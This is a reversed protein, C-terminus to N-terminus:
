SPPSPCALRTRGTRLAREVDASAHIHLRFVIRDETVGVLTLWRLFLRVMGPDSNMFRVKAGTRWPKNKTGEAWYAVVGAVFLESEALEGVQARAAAQVGTRRRVASERVAQARRSAAAWGRAALAARQDDTLPVDRLWRSLTSKSVLLAQRIERYSRGEHRLAVAAERLDDKATPRATWAPPPADRLWASLARGGTALGLADCIQARSLGALPLQVAAERLAARTSDAM